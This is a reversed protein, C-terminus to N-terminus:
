RRVKPGLVPRAGIGTAQADDIYQTDAADFGTFTVNAM